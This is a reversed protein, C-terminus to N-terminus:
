IASNPSSEFTWILRCSRQSNGDVCCIRLLPLAPVASLGCWGPGETASVGGLGERSTYSIFSGDLADFRVTEHQTPFADLLLYSKLWTGSTIICIPPDPLSHNWALPPVSM